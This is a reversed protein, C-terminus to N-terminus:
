HFQCAGPGEPHGCQGCPGMPPADTRGASASAAPPAFVSLKKDLTTSQCQPCRPQTGSRVLTEFQEGCAQCAYEYIPM